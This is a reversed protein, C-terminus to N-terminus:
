GVCAENSKSREMEFGGATEQRQRPRTLLLRFLALVAGSCSSICRHVSRRRRPARLGGLSLAALCTALARSAALLGGGGCALLLLSVAARPAHTHRLVDVTHTDGCCTQHHAKKTVNINGEHTITVHHTTGCQM